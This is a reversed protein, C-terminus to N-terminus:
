GIFRHVKASPHAAPAPCLGELLMALEAWQDVGLERERTIIRTLCSGAHARREETDIGFRAERLAAIASALVGAYRMDLGASRLLARVGIAGRDCLLTATVAETRKSLRALVETAFLHDGVLLAKLIERLALKPQAIADTIRRERQDASVREISPLSAWALRSALDDPLGARAALAREIFDIHGWEEHIRRLLRESIDARPNELLTAIAEVNAVEVITDAVLAPVDARGSVAVQKPATGLKVLAILDSAILAPSHRLVPIAVSEFDRALALAADRPLAPLDKVAEAFTQRVRVAGDGIALRVLERAAECLPMEPTARRVAEAAELVAAIRLSIEPQPSPESGSPTL